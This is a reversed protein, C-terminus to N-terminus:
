SGLPLILKRHRQVNGQAVWSRILDVGHKYGPHCTRVQKGSGCPCKFHWRARCQVHKRAEEGSAVLCAITRLVDADTPHRKNGLWEILGVFGHALEGWPWQGHRDFFSQAYLFPQVYRLIFEVTTMVSPPEALLEQPAAYCTTQVSYVHLDILRKGYRKATEAPRDGLIKLFPDANSCGVEIQFSDVLFTAQAEADALHDETPNLVLSGGIMAGCVSLTGSLGASGATALTPFECMAKGLDAPTWAM